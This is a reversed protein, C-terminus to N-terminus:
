VADVRIAKQFYLINEYTRINASIGNQYTELGVNKENLGFSHALEGQNCYMFNIISNKPSNISIKINEKFEADFQIFAIGNPLGMGRVTGIGLENNFLLVYEKLIVKLEGGIEKQLSNFLVETNSAKIEITKM